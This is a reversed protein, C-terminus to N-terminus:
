DDPTEIEVQALELERGELVKTSIEGCLPCSFIAGVPLFEKACSECLCKVPVSEWEFKGGEAITGQTVAEFAFELADPVVGAMEGIRLRILTVKIAGAKVAADIAIDVAQDMIAVEHM